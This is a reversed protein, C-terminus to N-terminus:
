NGAGNAKEKVNAYSYLGLITTDSGAWSGIILAVDSASAALKWLGFAAFITVVALSAAAVLFKRSGYDRM